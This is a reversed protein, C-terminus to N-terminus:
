ELRAEGMCSAPSGAKVEVFFRELTAPGGEVVTEPAM